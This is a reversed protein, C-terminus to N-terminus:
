GIIEVSTLGGEKAGTYSGLDRGDRIVESVKLKFGKTLHSVKIKDGQQLKSKISENVIFWGDGLYTLVIVRGPDYTIQVMTGEPTASAVVEDVPTFDSIETDDGIEKALLKYNPYGVYQAIIDMTSQRPAVQLGVFGFLRKLTALSLREGTAQFISESLAECDQSYQMKQGHKEEIKERIKGNLM